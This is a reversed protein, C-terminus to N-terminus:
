IAVAMRVYGLGNREFPIGVQRMGVREYYSVASLRAHCWISAIKWEKAYAFVRRLLATGVGKGQYDARVAFKRFQLGDGAAFLSIVGILKNDHYAGFHTAEFDGDIMVDALTGAPYLVVQRLRWTVAATVQEIVLDEM